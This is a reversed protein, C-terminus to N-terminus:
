PTLVPAIARPRSSTRLLCLLCGPHVTCTSPRRPDLLFRSLPQFLPRNLTILHVFQVLGLFAESSFKPPPQSPAPPCPPAAQGARARSKTRRHGPSSIGPGCPSQGSPSPQVRRACGRSCSCAPYMERFSEPKLGEEWLSGAHLMLEPTPLPTAGTPWRRSWSRAKADMALSPCTGPTVAADGM